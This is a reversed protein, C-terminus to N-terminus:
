TAEERDSDDEDGDECFTELSSTETYLKFLSWKYRLEIFHQIGAEKLFGSATALTSASLSEM